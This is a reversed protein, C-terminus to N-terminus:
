LSSQFLSLLSFVYGREGLASTLRNYINAQVAVASAALGAATSQVGGNADDEASRTKELAIREPIPRDPGGVTIEHTLHSKQSFFFSTAAFVFL